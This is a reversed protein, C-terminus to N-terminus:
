PLSISNWHASFSRLGISSSPFVRNSYRRSLLFLVNDADIASKTTPDGWRKLEPLRMISTWRLRDPACGPGDPIHQALNPAHNEM